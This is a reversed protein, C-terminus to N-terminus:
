LYFFRRPVDEREPTLHPLAEQRNEQAALEQLTPRSQSSWDIKKGAITGLSQGVEGGVPGTVLKGIAGGVLASGTEGIFSSATKVTWNPTFTAFSYHLAVRCSSDICPLRKM